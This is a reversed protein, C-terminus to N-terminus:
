MKRKRLGRGGVEGWLGDERREGRLEVCENGKHGCSEEEKEERNRGM